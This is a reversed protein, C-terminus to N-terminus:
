ASVMGLGWGMFLSLLFIAFSCIILWFWIGIRGNRNKTAKCYEIVVVDPRIGILRHKIIRLRYLYNAMYMLSFFGTLLSILTIWNVLEGM